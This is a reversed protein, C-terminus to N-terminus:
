ILYGYAFFSYLSVIESFFCFIVMVYFIGTASQTSRMRVLRWTFFALISLGLLGMGYRVLLMVWAFSFGPGSEAFEQFFHTHKSLEYFSLLAKAGLLPFLAQLCLLLPRVTLKPVVLYWHGLIMAFTINGIIVMTLFLGAFDYSSQVGLNKLTVYCNGVLFCILLPTVIYEFKSRRDDSPLFSIGYLAAMGLLIPISFPVASIKLVAMGLTLSLLSLWLFIRVIGRGTLRSQFSPMFLLAGISLSMMFTYFTLVYASTM